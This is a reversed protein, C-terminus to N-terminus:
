PVQQTTSIKPCSHVVACHVSSARRKSETLGGSVGHVPLAVGLQVIGLNAALGMELTGMNKIDVEHYAPYKRVLPDRAYSFASSLKM